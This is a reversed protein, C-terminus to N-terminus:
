QDTNVNKMKIVFIIQPLKEIENAFISFCFKEKTLLSNKWKFTSDLVEKVGM